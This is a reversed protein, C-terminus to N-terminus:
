SRRSTASAACRCRRSIPATPKWSSRVRGSRAYRKGCRTPMLSIDRRRRNGLLLDSSTRRDDRRSPRERSATFSAACERRLSAAAAGRLFRRVCRASSLRAAAATERALRIQARLVAAQADRPSHDYYYDLGTEGIAVVVNGDNVDACSRERPGRARGAGRASPHRRRRTRVSANRPRMERARQRRYRLRRNGSADRRGRGRARDGRRPRRRVERRPHPLAYRDRRRPSNWARFSRAAPLRRREPNSAAGRACRASWDDSSEGAADWAAGCRTGHARAHGSAAADALWRLGECLDYLLADLEGTAAKRPSRGHSANTSRATSRPSSNGRRRSRKAFACTWSASACTRRCAPSDRAIAGGTAASRFSATAINRCCRSRHSAVSQRSRQRSRQQPAARDERRFVLLRQRVASGAAFFLAAFGRRFTRGARVSRRRQRSEKGDKARRRHDLRARLGTGAGSRGLAWLMAPWIITHFRAIEKGILQTARALLSTLAGRRGREM